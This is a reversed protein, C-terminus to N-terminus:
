DNEKREIESHKLMDSVTTGLLKALRDMQDFSAIATGRYLKRIKKKTTGLFDALYETSIDKERALEKIRKGLARSQKTGYLFRIRIALSSRKIKRVLKNM